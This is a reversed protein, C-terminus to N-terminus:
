SVTLKFEQSTTDLSINEVEQNNSDTVKTTYQSADVTRVPDAAHVITPVVVVANIAPGAGVLLSAAILTAKNLKSM